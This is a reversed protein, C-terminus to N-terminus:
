FGSKPTRIGGGRGSKLSSQGRGSRRAAPKCSAPEVHTTGFNSPYLSRRYGIFFTETIPQLCPWIARLVEKLLDPGLHLLDVKGSPLFDLCRRRHNYYGDEYKRSEELDNVLQNLEAKTVQQLEEASHTRVQSIISLFSTDAGDVPRFLQHWFMNFVFGVGRSHRRHRGVPRSFVSGCLLRAIRIHLPVDNM